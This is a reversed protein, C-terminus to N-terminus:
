RGGRITESLGATMDAKFYSMEAKFDKRDDDM